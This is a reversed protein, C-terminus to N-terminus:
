KKSRQKGLDHVVYSMRKGTERVTVVDTFNNDKMYYLRYGQLVGRPSSPRAWTLRVSSNTVDSARVNLPM